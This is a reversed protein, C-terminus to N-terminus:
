SRRPSFRGPSHVTIPERLLAAAVQSNVVRKLEPLGAPLGSATVTEARLKSLKDVIDTAM